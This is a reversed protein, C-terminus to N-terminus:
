MREYVGFFSSIISKKLTVRKCGKVVQLPCFRLYRVFLPCIKLRKSRSDNQQAVFNIDGFSGTVVVCIKIGESVKKNVRTCPKLLRM